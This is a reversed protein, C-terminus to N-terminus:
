SLSDFIFKEMKKREDLLRKYGISYDCEFISNEIGSDVYKRKIDFKELFTDLRSNMNEESDERNYVLFPKGFLFSFVCAHFSDTMVLSAHSILYIFEGPGASAIMKNTKELLNYVKLNNIESYKKLERNTRESRSGLFYTLIYPINEDFGNPKSAVHSWKEKDLMLTPDILVQAERGILKKIIDVGTQERVSLYKYKSLESAFLAKWKEPLNNIGISPSMCIRKENPAFALLFANKRYPNKDYWSPNWVQDSGISYFDYIDPIDSRMDYKSWKINKDFKRFSSYRDRKIFDRIKHKLSVLISKRELLLTEPENGMAKFIEQVAYNQLRNGYNYSIITVIAIKSM